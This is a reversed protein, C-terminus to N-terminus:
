GKTDRELLSRLGACVVHVVSVDKGEEGDRKYWLCLGLSGRGACSSRDGLKRNQRM